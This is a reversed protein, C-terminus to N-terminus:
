RYITSLVKKKWHISPSLLLNCFDKIFTERQLPQRDRYQCVPFDNAEKLGKTVGQHEKRTLEPLRNAKAEVKEKLIEWSKNRTRQACGGLPPPSSSCGEQRRWAEVCVGGMDVLFLPSAGFWVLHHICIPTDTRLLVTFLCPKPPVCGLGRITLFM